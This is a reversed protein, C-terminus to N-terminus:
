FMIQAPTVRNQGAWDGLSYAAGVGASYVGGESTLFHCQANDALATTWLAGSFAFDVITRDLLTFGAELPSGNAAAVGSKTNGAFTSGYGWGVCRGDSRLAMACSAYNVSGMRLKTVNKLYDGGIATWTTHNVGEGLGYSGYGAHVVTGDKLLAVCRNYKGSGLYADEVNDHVKYPMLSNGTGSAFINGTYGTGYSGYEDHGWRYLSGDELLIGYSRYYQSGTASHDDDEAGFFKKVRNNFGWPMFPTFGAPAFGLGTADSEGALYLIGNVDILATTAYQASMIFIDKMPITLSLTVLKPTTIAATAGGDPIAANRNSGWLYALGNSDICGMTKYGYRGQNVYIKTIVADAPLDGSGNIKKPVLAVTSGGDGAASGVNPGSYWLGGKADLYYTDGAYGSVVKIISPTGPPFGVKVPLVHNVEAALGNGLAGNVSKGWGRVSGDNMIAFMHGPNFWAGCDAGTTTDALATAIVGNRGDMFRFEVGAEGKSHLVMQSRGSVAGSGVVLEGAKGADVQGLVFEEFAGSRYVWAGGNRYVVDRERYALYHSYLGRWCYGIKELEIKM